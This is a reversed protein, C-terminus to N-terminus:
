MFCKLWLTKCKVNWWACLKFSRLSGKNSKEFLLLERLHSLWCFFFIRFQIGFVSSVYQMLIIDWVSESYGGVWRLFFGLIWFISFLQTSIRIDWLCILSVLALRMWLMLVSHVDTQTVQRSGLFSPSSQHFSLSPPTQFFDPPSSSLLGPASQLRWWSRPITYM